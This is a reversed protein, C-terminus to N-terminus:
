KTAPASSKKTFVGADNLAQVAIDVTASAAQAAIAADEAHAPSVAQAVVGAANIINLAAQKKVEGSQNKHLQEVSQVVPLVAPLLQLTMGFYKLFNNV